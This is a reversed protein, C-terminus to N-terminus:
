KPEHSGKAVNWIILLGDQGGSALRRGDPSFALSRIPQTHARLSIRKSGTAVEWLHIIKDASAGSTGALWKGDPSFAIPRDRGALSKGCSLEMRKVGTAVNWLRIARVRASIALDRGDPSFTIFGSGIDEGEITSSEKGGKTMDLIVVTNTEEGDRVPGRLSRAGIAMTKGDPSYAVSEVGGKGIDKIRGV